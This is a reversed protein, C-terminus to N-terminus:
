TKAGTHARDLREYIGDYHRDITAVLEDVKRSALASYIAEHWEYTSYPNPDKIDTNLATRHHALWFVDILKSLVRNDVKAYLLQHFARDEQPFSNGAEARARMEDLAHRLGALQEDDVLAAVRHAMGTELVRRVELLDELATMDSQLGYPLNDLLVDFTFDGVFLGTGRRTEVVGLSELAKIAERVSNRSIGLQKALSGEPPLPAGPMLQNRIIFDKISEQARLHISKTQEVPELAPTTTLTPAVVEEKGIFSEAPQLM